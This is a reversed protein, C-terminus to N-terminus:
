VKSAAPALEPGLYTRLHSDGRYDWCYQGRAILFEKVLIEDPLYGAHVLSLDVIRRFGQYSSLDFVKCSEVLDGGSLDLHAWSFGVSLSTFFDRHSRHFGDLQRVCFARWEGTNHEKYVITGPRYLLWLDNYCIEELSGSRIRDIVDVSRPWEYRLLDLMVDLHEKPKGSLRSHEKLLRDWHHFLIMYPKHITFRAGLLIGYEPYKPHIVEKLVQLLPKSCAELRTNVHSSQNAYVISISLM